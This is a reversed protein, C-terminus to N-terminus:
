HLIVNYEYIIQIKSINHHIVKYIINTGCKVNQKNQYSHIETESLLNIFFIFFLYINM